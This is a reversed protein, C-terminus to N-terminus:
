GIRNYTTLTNGQELIQERVSLTLIYTFRWYPRGLRALVPPQQLHGASEVIVTNVIQGRKV